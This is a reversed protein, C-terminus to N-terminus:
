NNNLKSKIWYVKERIQRTESAIFGENNLALEDISKFGLKEFDVSEGRKLGKVEDLVKTILSKEYVEENEFSYIENSDSIIKENTNIKKDSIPLPTLYVIIEENAKPATYAILNDESQLTNILDKNEIETKIPLKDISALTPQEIEIVKNITNTKKSISSAALDSTKTNLAKSDSTQSSITEIKKEVIVVKETNTKKPLEISKVQAVNSNKQETNFYVGLLTTLILCAAIGITNRLNFFVVKKQKQKLKQQFLANARESPKIEFDKLKDAFNKDLNEMM